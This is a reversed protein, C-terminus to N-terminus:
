GLNLKTVQLVSYTKQSNGLYILCQLQQKICRQIQQGRELNCKTMTLWIQDYFLSVQLYETKLVSSNCQVSQYQESPLQVSHMLKLYQCSYDLFNLTQSTVSELLDVQVCSWLLGMVYGQKSPAPIVPLLIFFCQSWFKLLSVGWIHPFDPRRSKMLSM